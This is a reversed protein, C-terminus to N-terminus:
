PAPGITCRFKESTFSTEKQSHKYDQIAQYCANEIDSGPKDWFARDFKEGPKFGDRGAAGLAAVAFLAVTGSKGIIRKINAM